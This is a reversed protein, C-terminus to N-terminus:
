MAEPKDAFSGGGGAVHALQDDSLEEEEDFDAPLAVKGDRYAASLEGVTCPYGKEAALAVISPYDEQMSLGLVQKRLGEDQVVLSLFSEANTNM